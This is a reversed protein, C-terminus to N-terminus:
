KLRKSRWVYQAPKGDEAGRIKRKVGKSQALKGTVLHSEATELARVRKTREEIERYASRKAKALKQAVKRANKFQLKLEVESPQKNNEEVNDDDDSDESKARGMAGKAMRNVQDITSRNHSRGVLEPLTNFHKAADFEEAEEKSDVFITHKRDVPQASEGGLQLSEQLREIKKRDKARQMRIYSLDQDKMIRITDSGIKEDFEEQSAELTKSHKGNKVESRHMGFYFEDPNKMSAKQKLRNIVDEKRHFDKARKVYDKKKELIGLHSRARPQAREKHTIRKVANRLSSM